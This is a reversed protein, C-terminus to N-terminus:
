RNLFFTWFIMNATFRIVTKNLCVSSVQKLTIERLQSFPDVIQTEHGHSPNKDYKGLKVNRVM